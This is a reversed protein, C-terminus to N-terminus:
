GKGTCVTYIACWLLQATLRIIIGELYVVRKHIADSLKHVALTEFIYEHINVNCGRGRSCISTCTYIYDSAATISCDARTFIVITIM